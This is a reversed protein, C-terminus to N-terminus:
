VRHGSAPVTGPPEPHLPSRSSCPHAAAPQGPGLTARLPAGVDRVAKGAERGPCPRTLRRQRESASFIPHGPLDRGAPYLQAANPVAVGRGGGGSYGCVTEAPSPAGDAKM